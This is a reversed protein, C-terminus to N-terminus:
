IAQAVIEAVDLTKVSEDKGLEAVGDKLMTLCFPCSSSVTDTGCAVAEKARHVNIREGINEEMWFRAGGAGCCVGRSKNRPMEVLKLGRVSKLAKRPAEYIDHYRGLYCSDHLTVSSKVEHKLELKGAAVLQEILQTHHVLEYHGGFQPYDVSLTHLCHPCHTLIKKVGYSNLLEVNATAMTQFLYENGARRASDGTCGEEKGLIAFKVGAARLIKVMALTIKKTRDDFSGACGVWYLLEIPEGKAKLDAARPVDLGQAWADRQDSGIGWPNQNQEMGKFARALEPAVDGEMLVKHQRMAIIRPINEILVPCENECAGCTTCAWITDPSIRGGVLPELAEVKSKDGTLLTPKDAYLAHKLDLNLQRHSLPKNTLHTPCFVNCRGCETCSYADLAMKWTLDSTARLGFTESAELDIKVLEGRPRLNRFFVNPIATIVHFHKGIPLFNLFVLIAVCHIWWSVLAVLHAGSTGLPTLLLAAVYGAPNYPLASTGHVVHEGGYTLFDTIMLTFIMVLVFVGEWSRGVRSPTPKLRRWLGYMVGLLVLVEFVDKVLLYVLGAQGGLGPFHWSPDYAHAFHTITAISVVLFGSFIFIHAFGAVPERPMRAQGFAFKLTGWLRTGLHDVRSENALRLLLRFRPVILWAFVGLAAVLLLSMVIATVM